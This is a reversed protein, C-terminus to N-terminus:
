DEALEYEGSDMEEPSVNEWDSGMLPDEPEPEAAPEGQEPLIDKLYHFLMGAVLFLFVISLAQWVGDSNFVFGDRPIATREIGFNFFLALGIIVGSAILTNGIQKYDRFEDLMYSMSLWSLLTSFAIVMSSEYRDHIVTYLFLVLGTFLIGWKILITQKQKM